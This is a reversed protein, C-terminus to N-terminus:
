VCADLSSASVISLAISDSRNNKHTTPKTPVQHISKFLVGRSAGDDYFGDKNILDVPLLDCHSYLRPCMRKM